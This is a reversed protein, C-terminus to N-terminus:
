GSYKTLDYIALNATYKHPLISAHFSCRRALALWESSLVTFMVAVTRHLFYQLTHAQVKIPPESELKISTLAPLNVLAESLATAGSSFLGNGRDLRLCPLVRVREPARVSVRGYRYPMVWGVATRTWVEVWRRSTMQHWKGRLACEHTSESSLHARASM